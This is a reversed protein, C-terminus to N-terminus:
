AWRVVLNKTLLCLQSKFTFSLLIRLRGKNNKLNMLKLIMLKFLEFFNLFICKIELDEIGTEGALAIILCFTLLGYGSNYKFVQKTITEIFCIFLVNIDNRTQLIIICILIKLRTEVNANMLRFTHKM